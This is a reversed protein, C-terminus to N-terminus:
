SSAEVRRELAVALAELSEKTSGTDDFLVLVGEHRIRQFVHARAQGLPAVIVEYEIDRLGPVLLRSQWRLKRPPRFTSVEASIERAAGGEPELRVELVEGRAARGEVKRMYPNWSPYSEFDMLVAWVDMRPADIDIEAAATRSPADLAASAVVAIAAAVLIGGVAIGLTRVLRRTM